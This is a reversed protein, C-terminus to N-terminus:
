QLHLIARRSLKTSAVSLFALLQGSPRNILCMQFYMWRPGVVVYTWCKCRIVLSPGITCSDLRGLYWEQLNYFNGDRTCMGM